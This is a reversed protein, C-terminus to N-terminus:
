KKRFTMETGDPDMVKMWDGGIKIHEAHNKMGALERDLNFVVTDGPGLSYTGSFNGKPTRYDMTGDSRFELKLFGEKLYQGRVSGPISCWKTGEIKGKNSSECGATFVLAVVILLRVCVRNM